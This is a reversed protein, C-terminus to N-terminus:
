NCFNYAKSIHVYRGFIPDLNSHKSLFKCLGHDSPYFDLHLGGQYWKKHLTKRQFMPIDHKINKKPVIDYIMVGHAPKTNKQNKKIEKAGM